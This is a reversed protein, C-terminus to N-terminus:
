ALTSQDIVPVDPLAYYDGKSDTHIQSAIQLGTDGDLSGACVSINANDFRRWFLNSGCRGCFGRKATDSSAFWILTSGTIRIDTTACQTAAVYHGSTKRCQICHCAVIPRLPGTITYTVCGCLCAGRKESTMTAGM